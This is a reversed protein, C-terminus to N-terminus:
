KIWKPFLKNLVSIDSMVRIDLENQEKIKEWSKYSTDFSRTMLKYRNYAIRGGYIEHLDVCYPEDSVCLDIGLLIIPSCGLYHLFHCAPHLCDTGCILLDNFRYDARNSYNRNFILKNGNNKNYEYILEPNAYVTCGARSIGVDYYNFTTATQDTVFFYDMKDFFLGTQNVCVSIGDEIISKDIWRLSSGSGCLYGTKGKHIDKIEELDNM